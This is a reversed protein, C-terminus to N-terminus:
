RGEKSAKRARTTGLLRALAGLARHQMVKVAGESRGTISAVEANSRGEGFRLLLVERQEDTLGALAQRLEQRQEEALVQEEAPPDLSVITESLTVNDNSRRRSADIVLNRAIRYLWATFSAEEAQAPFRFSPLKEVVRVWLESALDEALSADGCRLYMFRFMPTAWREYLTDFARRDGAQADRVLQVLERDTSVAGPGPLTYTLTENYYVPPFM